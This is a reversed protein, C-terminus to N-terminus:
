QRGWPCGGPPSLPPSFPSLGSVLAPDNNNPHPLIDTLTFESLCRIKWNWGTGAEAASNPITLPGLGALPGTVCGVM